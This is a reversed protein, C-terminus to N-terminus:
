LWLAAHPFESTEIEVTRNCSFDVDKQNFNLGTFNNMLGRDLHTEHCM